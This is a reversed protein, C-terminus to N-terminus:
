GPRPQTCVPRRCTKDTVGTDCGPGSKTPKPRPKPKVKKKAPKAPKKTGAMTAVGVDGSGWHAAMVDGTLFEGGRDM